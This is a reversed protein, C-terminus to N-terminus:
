LKLVEEFWCYTLLLLGSYQGWRTSGYYSFGYLGFYILAAIMGLSFIILPGKGNM